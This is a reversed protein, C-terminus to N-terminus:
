RGDGELASAEASRGLARLLPILRRRQLEAERERGGALARRRADLLQDVALERDGDQEAMYALNTQSVSVLFHDSPLADIAVAVAERQLERGLTAQGRARRLNALNSLAGVLVDKPHDDLTRARKVADELIAAADDLRGLEVLVAGLRQMSETVFLHGDGLRSRLVPLASRLLPEAEDDRGTEHLVWALDVEAWAVLPHGDGYSRRRRELGDRFAAEAAPFDRNRQLLLARHQIAAIVDPHDAGLEGELAVVEGIAAFAPELRGLAGHVNALLLQGRAIARPDDLARCLELYREAAERALEHAGRRQACRAVFEELSARLRPDRVDLGAEIRIAEALDAEAAVISGLQYRVKVRQALALLLERGDGMARALEVARDAHQEADLAAGLFSQLSAISRRVRSEVAPEDAALIPLDRVNDALLERAPYDARGLRGFDAGNWLHEILDLARNSERTAREARQQDARAQKEALEAARWAVITLLLGVALAAVISAAAIVVLRHRRVFKRLHYTATRPGADVPEHRLWRRVDDSLAAVTSYREAPDKAMARAVIWDIERSIPEGAIRSPPAPRDERIARLLDRVASDGRGRVFPREGACLEYLLVGLSYVDTRVDIASRDNRLREPSMYDPTGPTGAGDEGTEAWDGVARALGFDIVIPRASGDRETVLVNAPKIDQHVIGKAHAHQVATCVELFLGLRGRVTLERSRSFETIAEGEVLQMTLWPRGDATTGADFLSAIGPHQLRALTQREALFWRLLREGDGRLIKMAVDREVPALQRARWVTGFGGQGIREVLEYAGVRDLPELDDVGAAIDATVDGVASLSVPRELFDGATDHARLLVALRRLLADDGVSAARLFDARQTPPLEIARAFLSKLRDPEDHDGV